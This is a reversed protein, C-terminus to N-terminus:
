CNARPGSLLLRAFRVLAVAVFLTALFGASIVLGFRIGSPGDAWFQWTGIALITAAALLLETRLHRWASRGSMVFPSLAFVAFVALAPYQAASDLKELQIYVAFSALNAGALAAYRGGSQWRVCGLGVVVLGFVLLVLPVLTM